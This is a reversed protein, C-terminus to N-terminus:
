EDEGLPQPFPVHHFSIQNRRNIEGGSQAYNKNIKLM